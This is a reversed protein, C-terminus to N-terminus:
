WAGATPWAIGPRRRISGGRRTAILRLSPFSIHDRGIPPVASLSRGGGPLGGAGDACCGAPPLYVAPGKPAGWPRKSAITAGEVAVAGRVGLRSPTGAGFIRLRGFSRRT